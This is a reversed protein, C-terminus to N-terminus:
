IVHMYFPKVVYENITTLKLKDGKGPNDLPMTSTKDIVAQLEILYVKLEGPIRDMVLVFSCNFPYENSM